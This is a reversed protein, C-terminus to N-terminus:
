DRPLADRHSGPFYTNGAAVERVARVIEQPEGSKSVCGWAGADFARDTFDRSDYGSYIITRVQPCSAALERMAEFSDKGPMSADLIVVDPSPDIRCVEGVLDNASSFSGVYEMDGAEANIMMRMVDTIDSLDDVCVVRIPRTTSQSNRVMAMM